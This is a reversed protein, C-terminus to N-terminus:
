SLLHVDAPPGDGVQHSDTVDERFTRQNGVAARHDDEASARESWRGAPRQPECRARSGEGEVVAAVGQGEARIGADVDGGRGVSRLAVVVLRQGEVRVKIAGPGLMRLGAGSASRGHRRSSERISREELAAGLSLRLRRGRAPDDVLEMGRRFLIRISIPYNFIARIFEDLDYVQRPDLLVDGIPRERISGRDAM